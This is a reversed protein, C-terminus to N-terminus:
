HRPHSTISVDRELDSQHWRLALLAYELADTAIKLCEHRSRGEKVTVSTGTAVHEVSVWPPNCGVHQGGKPHQQTTVKLQSEHIM